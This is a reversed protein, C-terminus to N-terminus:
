NSQKRKRYVIALTVLAVASIIGAIIVAIRSHNETTNQPKDKGLMPLEVETNETPIDEFEEADEDNKAVDEEETEGDISDDGSKGSLALNMFSKEGLEEIGGFVAVEKVKEIPVEIKKEVPVEKIVEKEVPVKVEKEVPIEVVKEIYKVEPETTEERTSGGGDGGESERGGTEGTDSTGGGIGTGGTDNTGGMEGASGGESTGGTDDTDGVHEIMQSDWGGDKFVRIERDVSTDEDTMVLRDWGVYPQYYIRGDEWIEARCIANDGNQFQESNLCRSYDIRTRFLNTSNSEPSIKFLYVAAFTGDTNETLNHNMSDYSFEEGTDRNRWNPDYMSNKLYSKFNHEEDLYITNLEDDDIEGDVLEFGRLIGQSYDNHQLLLSMTNNRVDIATIVLGSKDNTNYDTMGGYANAVVGSLASITISTAVVLQSVKKTM